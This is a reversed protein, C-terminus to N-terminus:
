SDESILAYTKVSQGAVTQDDAESGLIYFAGSEDRCINSKACRGEKITSMQREEVISSSDFQIDLYTIVRDNTKNSCGGVAEVEHGYGAQDLAIFVDVPNVMGGCIRLKGARHSKAVYVWRSGDDFSYDPNGLQHRIEDRATKGAQILEIEENEINTVHESPLQPVPIVACGQGMIALLIWGVSLAIKFRKHRIRSLERTQMYM